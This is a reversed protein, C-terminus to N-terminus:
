KMKNQFRGLFWSLAQRQKGIGNRAQLNPFTALQDLVLINEFGALELAELYAKGGVFYIPETRDEYSPTLKKALDSSRLQHEELKRKNSPVLQANYPDLKTNAPILGWLASLVWVRDISLGSSKHAKRFSSWLSGTYLQFAPARHELKGAGCSIVLRM